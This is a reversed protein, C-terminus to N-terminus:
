PGRGMLMVFRRAFGSVWALPGVLNTKYISVFTDSDPHFGLKRDIQFCLVQLADSNPAQDKRCNGQDCKKMTAEMCPWDVPGAM